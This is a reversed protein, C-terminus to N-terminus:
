RALCKKRCLPRVDVALANPDSSPRDDEKEQGDDKWGAEESIEAEPRDALAPLGDAPYEGRVEGNRGVGGKPRDLIRKEFVFPLGEIRGTKAPNQCPGIPRRARGRDCVLRPPPMKKQVFLELDNPRSPSLLRDRGRRRGSIGTILGFFPPEAPGFNELELFFIELPRRGLVPAREGRAQRGTKEAPSLGPFPAAKDGQFSIFVGGSNIAVEGGAGRVNLVLRTM